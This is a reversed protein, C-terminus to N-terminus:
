CQNEVPPEVAAVDDEALDELAVVNDLLDLLGLGLRTVAGGLRDLDGLGALQGDGIFTDVHLKSNGKTKGVGWHVVYVSM